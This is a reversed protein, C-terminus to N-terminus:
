CGFLKLEDAASRIVNRVDSYQIVIATRGPALGDNDGDVLPMEDSLVTAGGDILMGQAVWVEVQEMWFPNMRGLAPKTTRKFGVRVKMVEFLAPWLDYLQATTSCKALAVELLVDAIATQVLVERTSAVWDLFAAYAEPEMSPQFQAKDPIPMVGHFKLGIPLDMETGNVVMTTPVKVFMNYQGTANGPWKKRYRMSLDLDAESEYYMRVVQAYTLPPRTFPSTRRWLFQMAKGSVEMRVWDNIRSSKTQSSTWGDPRYTRRAM